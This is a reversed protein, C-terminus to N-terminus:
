HGCEQMKSFFSFKSLQEDIRERDMDLHQQIRTRLWNALHEPADGQSSVATSQAFREFLRDLNEQAENLNYAQLEILIAMSACAIKEAAEIRAVLNLILQQHLKETPTM